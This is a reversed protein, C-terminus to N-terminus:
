KQKAPIREGTVRAEDTTFTKSGYKSKCRVRRILTAYLEKMIKPSNNEAVANILIKQGQLYYSKSLYSELSLTGTPMCASKVNKEDYKGPQYALEPRDPDLLQNIIIKLRTERDRKKPRSLIAKLFYRAYGLFKEPPSKFSPPLGHPINFEFEYVYRGSEHTETQLSDESKYGFVILGINVLTVSKDKQSSKKRGSIRRVNSQRLWQGEGEGFLIVKLCRIDVPEDLCIYLEGRLIDGPLFAIRDEKTELAFERLNRM